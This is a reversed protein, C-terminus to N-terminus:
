AAEPAPDFAKLELLQLAELTHALLRSDLALNQM